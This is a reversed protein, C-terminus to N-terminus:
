FKSKLLSSNFFKKLRKELNPQINLQNKFNTYDILLKDTNSSKEKKVARILLNKPTHEMDIFELIQTQYGMIELIQVRAADTILSSFREKLIGHKLLPELTKNKVQTFLEHQCCPVSLIVETDWLVAKELAADTATDCAHLSVMMNVKKVTEFHNIDGLQFDLHKFHLKKAVQSCYVVVDKKLDLGTIEVNLGLINHMYHYLAFTLYAKGCGFDVIHINGLTKLHPIIDEILELFRNLQKFKDSKKALVQGSASMIGLEILFPIPTGEELIYNKKRNHSLTALKTTEGKVKLYTSIGKKNTLIQYNGTKLSIFAQKFSKLFIEWDFKEVNKHFTKPYIFETIQYCPKKKIILPRVEIKQAQTEDKIFPGSFVAQLFEQNEIAKNIIDKM